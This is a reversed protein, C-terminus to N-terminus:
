GARDVDNRRHSGRLLTTKPKERAVPRTFIRRWPAGVLRCTAVKTRLPIRNLIAAGCGSALDTRDLLHAHHHDIKEGANLRALLRECLTHFYEDSLLQEFETLEDYSYIAMLYWAVAVNPREEIAARAKEDNPYGNCSSDNQVAM